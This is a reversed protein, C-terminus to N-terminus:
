GNTRCGSPYKDFVSAQFTHFNVQQKKITSPNEQKSFSETSKVTNLLFHSCADLILLLQEYTLSQQSTQDNNNTTIRNKQNNFLHLVNFIMQYFATMTILDIGITLDQQKLKNLVSNEQHFFILDVLTQWIHQTISQPRIRDLIIQLSSIAMTSSDITRTRLLEYASFHTLQTQLLRYHNSPSSTSLQPQPCNVPPKDTRLRTVERLLRNSTEQSEHFRMELSHYRTQLESRERENFTLQSKCTELQTKLRQERASAAEDQETKLM